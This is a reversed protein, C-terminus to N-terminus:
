HSEAQHPSRAQKCQFLILNQISSNNWEGGIPIPLASLAHGVAWPPIKMCLGFKSGFLGARCLILLFGIIGEKYKDLVVTTYGNGDM